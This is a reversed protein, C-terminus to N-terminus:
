PSFFFSFSFFLSSEHCCFIKSLRELSKHTHTHSQTHAHTHRHTDSCVACSNEWLVVATIGFFFDSGKSATHLDAPRPLPPYTSFNRATRESLQWQFSCSGTHSGLQAQNAELPSTARWLCKRPRFAFWRRGRPRWLPQLTERSRGLSTPVAPPHGPADVAVVETHGIADVCCNRGCHPSSGPKCLSSEVQSRRM